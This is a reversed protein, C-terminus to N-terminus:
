LLPYYVPIRTENNDERWLASMMGLYFFISCLITQKVMASTYQFDSNCNITTSLFLALIVYLLFIVLGELKGPDSPLFCSTDGTLACTWAVEIAYLVSSIFSCATAAIAQSRTHSQPLFRVYNTAFIISAFLCFQTFYFAYHCLLDYCTLPFHSQLGCLEVMFVTLTGSFCICWLSVSWNVTCESRTDMSAVLLCPVCTSLLQELHLFFGVATRSSLGSFTRM